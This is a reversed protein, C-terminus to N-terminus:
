SGRRGRPAARLLESFLLHLLQTITLISNGGERCLHKPSHTSAFAFQALIPPFHKLFKELALISDLVM